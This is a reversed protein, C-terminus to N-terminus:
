AKPNTPKEVADRKRKKKPPRAGERIIFGLLEKDVTGGSCAVMMDMQGASEEIDHSYSLIIGGDPSVIVNGQKLLKFAEASLIISAKGEPTAAYLFLTRPQSPQKEDENSMRAPDDWEASLM